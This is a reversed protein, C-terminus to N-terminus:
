SKVGATSGAIDPGTEDIKKAKAAGVLETSKQQDPVYKLCLTNMEEETMNETIMDIMSLVGGYLQAGRKQLEEMTNECERIAENLQTISQNYGRLKNVFRLNDPSSEEPNKMLYTAAIKSKQERTLQNLRAVEM